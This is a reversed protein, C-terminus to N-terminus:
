RTRQQKVQNFDGDGESVVGAMARLRLIEGYARELLLRMSQLDIGAEGSRVKQIDDIIDTM